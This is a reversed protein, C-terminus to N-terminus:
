QNEWFDAKSECGALGAIYEWETKSALDCTVCAWVVVDTVSAEFNPLIPSPYKPM